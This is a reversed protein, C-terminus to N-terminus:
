SKAEMLSPPLPIEAEVNDFMGPVCFFGPPDSEEPTESKV